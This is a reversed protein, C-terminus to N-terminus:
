VTRGEAPFVARLSADVRDLLGVWGRISRPTRRLEGFGVAAEIASFSAPLWRDPRIRRCRELQPVLFMEGGLDIFLPQASKMM